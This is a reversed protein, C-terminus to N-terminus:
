ASVVLRYDLFADELLELAFGTEGDAIADIARSLRSLLDV